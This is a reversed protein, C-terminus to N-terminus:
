RQIIYLMNGDPDKFGRYRFEGPAGFIEQEFVVGVTELEAGASEINEVEFAIHDIGRPNAPYDTTRADGAGGTTEFIFLSLDGITASFQATAGDLVGVVCGPLTAYFAHMARANTTAVGINDVRKLM